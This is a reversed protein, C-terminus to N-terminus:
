RGRGARVLAGRIRSRVSEIMPLVEVNQPISLGEHVLTRDLAFPSAGSGNDGGVGLACTHGAGVVIARTMAGYHRARGYPYAFPLPEDGLEVALADRAVVVEDHQEESSLRSLVQHSM